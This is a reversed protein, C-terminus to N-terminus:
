TRALVNQVERDIIMQQGRPGVTSHSQTRRIKNNARCLNRTRILCTTVADESADSEEANLYDLMCAMGRRLVNLSAKM